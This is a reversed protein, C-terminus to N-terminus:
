QKIKVFIDDALFSVTAGGWCGSFVECSTAKGSNFDRQVLTWKGAKLSETKDNITKDPMRVGVYIGEPTDSDPKIWCGVTYDTNAKLTITQTCLDKWTGSETNSFKASVKGYHADRSTLAGENFKWMTKYSLSKQPYEEFSGESVINLGAADWTLTSHELFINWTPQSHSVVFWLDRGDLAWPYIYPAYFATGDEYMIIKEGSWDGEPSPSDRYVIARQTISLYMMMYVKYKSNYAVTMESATGRAVPNALSEDASWGSGTWYLYASKDLMQNEAVKALYVNDYRGSHTGYMYVYGGSKLYAVQTFHSEAPWKVGSRIWTAGYDDSYVIESYNVSWYDYDNTPRWDHISMYNVYQRKGVSVGGTIICTEEYQSGDSYQGTKKRSVILEKVSSGDMLMKDYHLGDNLNKDSSIAIANSKWNGLHTDFNDGFSCWITGNGADWMNGYDTAGIGFRDFSYNANLLTESTETVGTERAVLAISGPMLTGTAATTDPEETHTSDKSGPNPPLVVDTSKKCSSCCIILCM